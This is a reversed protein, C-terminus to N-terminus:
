RPRNRERVLAAAARNRARNIDNRNSPHQEHALLRDAANLALDPRGALDADILVGLLNLREGRLSHANMGRSWFPEDRDIAAVIQSRIEMARETHGAHRLSEVLELGVRHAQEIQGERAANWGEQAVRISDEIRALRRLQRSQFAIFNLREGSEVGWVPNESLYNSAADFAAQYDGMADLVYARQRTASLRSAEAAPGPAIAMQDYIHIADQHRGQRRRIAALQSAGSIYGGTQQADPNAAIMALQAEFAAAAEEVRDMRLLLQGKLRLAQQRHIAEVRSGALQDYLRLAAHNHGDDRLRCAVETTMMAYELRDLENGDALPALSGATTILFRQRADADVTQSMVSALFEMHAFLRAQPHDVPIRPEGDPQARTTTAVLLSGAALIRLMPSM